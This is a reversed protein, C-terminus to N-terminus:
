VAGSFFHMDGFLFWLSLHHQAGSRMSHLLDGTNYVTGGLGPSRWGSEPQWWESESLAIYLEEPSHHHEPYTIHPSMVTVGLTLNGLTALGSRGFIIANLHGAQFEPLETSLPKKYWELADAIMSICSAMAGLKEFSGALEKGATEITAKAMASYQSEPRCLVAENVSIDLEELRLRTAVDPVTSCLHSHILDVLCTLEFNLDVTM